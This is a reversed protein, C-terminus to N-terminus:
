LGRSRRGFLLGRDVKLRQGSGKNARAVSKLRGEFYAVMAPQLAKGFRPACHQALLGALYIFAEDEVENPDANFYIGEANLAALMPDVYTEVAALDEASATEGTGIVLLDELAATKLETRTKSM